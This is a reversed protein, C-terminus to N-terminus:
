IPGSREVVRGIIYVREAEELSLAEEPYAPNESKIILRNFQKILRKIKLTHDYAIAYVCNNVIPDGSCDILVMDGDRILPEMSDGQVRVRKCFQPKVGLKQLYSREYFVPQVEQIEDYTPEDHEGCGFTVNYEPIQIMESDSGLVSRKPGEGTILWRLNVGFYDAIKIIYNAGPLRQKANAYLWKSVVQPSEGIGRAFDSKTGGSEAILGSLRLKFADGEDKSIM